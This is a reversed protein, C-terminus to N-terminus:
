RVLILPLQYFASCSFDFFHMCMLAGLCHEIFGDMSRGRPNREGGKEKQKIRHRGTTIVWGQAQCIFLLFAWSTHPPISSIIHRGKSFFTAATHTETAFPPIKTNRQNTLDTKQFPDLFTFFNKAGSRRSAMNTLILPHQQQSTHHKDHRPFTTTTTFHYNNHHQLRHPSTNTTPPACPLIRSSWSVRKVGTCTTATTTSPASAPM